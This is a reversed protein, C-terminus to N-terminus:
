TVGSAPVITSNILSSIGWSAVTEAQGDELLNGEIVYVGGREAQTEPDATRMQLVQESAFPARWWGSTSIQDATRFSSIFLGLTPLVWMLVLVAVSIHVAWILAAKQGAIGEAHLDAM